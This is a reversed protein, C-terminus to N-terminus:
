KLSLIWQVLQTAEASKVMTNPPMPIEAGLEKRWAGKGGKLIKETLVAESGPKGAYRKAVDKYSPGVIKRDMAHCALCNKSKALAESAQAAACSVLGAAVLLPLCLVKM